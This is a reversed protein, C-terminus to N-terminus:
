GLEESPTHKITASVSVVVVLLLAMPIVVPFVACVLTPIIWNRSM